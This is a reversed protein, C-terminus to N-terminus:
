LKELFSAIEGAFRANEGGYRAAADAFAKQASVALERARPRDRRSEALARALAMQVRALDTPPIANAKALQLAREAPEVAEPARGLAILALAVQSLPESLVPQKKDSLELVAVARRELELAEPLRRQALRLEGLNILSIAVNQSEEGFARLSEAHVAELVPAAEEISGLALLVWGLNSKAPVVEPNGQGVMEEFARVAETFQARAEELRGQAVLANAMNSRVEITDLNMPGYRMESAALAERLDVLAEDLRGANALVLGRYARVNFVEKPDNGTREITALALRSYRLGEEPHGAYVGTVMTLTELATIVQPDDRGRQADLLSQEGYALADRIRGLREETITVIYGARAESPAHGVARVEALAPVAIELAKDAKGARLLAEAAAVKALAAELPQRKAPDRPKPVPMALAALDACERVPALAHVAAAAQDVAGRDAASLVDVLAGLERRRDDLCAMRLALTEEPQARRVRTAACSEARMASWGAAYEDLLRSAGAFAKAAYPLQTRSFSADMAARRGPDWVGDLLGATSCSAARAAWTGYGLLGAFAAVAALGAAALLRRRRRRPDAQLAQLVREMSSPREGPNAKLGSELLAALHSPVRRERADKFSAGARVAELLAAVGDGRFPRAGFLAEYLTVCFSFVDAREDSAELAMQEPAMYELTGAVQGSGNGALTALGFDSVRPRGDKGLLVNEPKFDRHVFGARHAAALGEGAASLVAVVERSSRPAVALWDRLTGGDLLEMALFVRDGLAGADFVTAVNPHSLQALVQAERLLLGRGAASREETHLLKLAVRRDLEPDFAAYVTGMGGAGLVDIVVYRGVLAGRSLLSSWARPPTARAPRTKAESAAGAVLARCTACSDLHVHMRAAADASSQGEIFEAVEDDSPCGLHTRM